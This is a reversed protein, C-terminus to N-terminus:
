ATKRYTREEAPELTTAYPRVEEAPRRSALFFGAFLLGLLVMSAGILHVSSTEPWPRSASAALTPEGAQKGQALQSFLDGQMESRLAANTLAAYQAQLAGSAEEYGIQASTVRVVAAGIGEQIRDARQLYDQSAQVITQGLNGQWTRAFDDVVRTGAADAREIMRDNYGNTYQDASLWGHRAGRITFNVISRGKVWESRAMNNSQVTEAMAFTPALYGNPTGQIMHYQMTARNLQDAAAATEQQAGQDLLTHSVITEGLAPQLINVEFFPQTSSAAEGTAFGGMGSSATMFLFGGLITACFGVAVMIDVAEFSRKM